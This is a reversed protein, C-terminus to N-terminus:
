WPASIREERNLQRQLSRISTDMARATSDISISGGRVQLRIHESIVGLTDRPAAGRRDRAVDAISIVPTAAPAPGRAGLCDRDFVVTMTPANFVVPCHFM